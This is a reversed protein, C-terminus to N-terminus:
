LPFKASLSPNSGGTGLPCVQNRTLRMRGSQWRELFFNDGMLYNFQRAILCGRLFCPLKEGDPANVVNAGFSKCMM